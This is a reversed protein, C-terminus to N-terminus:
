LSLHLERSCKEVCPLNQCGTAEYSKLGTIETDTLEEAEAEAEDKYTSSIARIRASVRCSHWTSMRAGGEHFLGFIPVNGSM